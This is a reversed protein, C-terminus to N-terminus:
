VSNNDSSCFNHNVKNKFFSDFLCVVQSEMVIVFTNIQSIIVHIKLTFFCGSKELYKTYHLSVVLLILMQKGTTKNLSAQRTKQLCQIIDKHSLACQPHSSRGAKPLSLLFTQLSFNCPHKQNYQSCVPYEQFPM